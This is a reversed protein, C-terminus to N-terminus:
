EEISNHTFDSLLKIQEEYKSESKQVLISMQEIIAATDVEVVSSDSEDIHHEEKNPNDNVSSYKASSFGSVNKHNISNNDSGHHRPSKHDQTKTISHDEKSPTSEM